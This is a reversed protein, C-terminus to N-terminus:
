RTGEDTDTRQRDATRSNATQSDRLHQLGTGLRLLGDALADREEDTWEAIATALVQRRSESAAELVAVGQDTLSLLAARGDAPDPTRAILGAAVLDRIQRSITSLDLEGQEALDSLRLPAQESVMVLLWYGTRGISVGDPLADQPVDLRLITRGVHTLSRELVASVPAPPAAIPRNAIHDTPSTM